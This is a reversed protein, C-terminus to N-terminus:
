IEKNLAFQLPNVDIVDFQADAGKSHAVKHIENGFTLGMQLVSQNMKIERLMSNILKQYQFFTRKRASSVSDLKSSNELNNYIDGYILSTYAPVRVEEPLTFFNEESAEDSVYGSFESFDDNM